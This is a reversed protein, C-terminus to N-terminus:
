RTEHSAAIPLVVSATKWALVLAQLPSWQTSGDSTGPIRNQLWGIALSFGRRISMAGVTSLM